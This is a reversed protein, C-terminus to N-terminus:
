IYIEKLWDKKLANKYGYEFNQRFESFTYRISLEKVIEFSWQIRKNQKMKVGAKEEIDYISIKNKQLTSIERNFGNNKLWRKSPFHGIEKIYNKVKESKIINEIIKDNSLM